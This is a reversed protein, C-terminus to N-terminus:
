LIPIAAQIISHHQCFYFRALFCINVMVFYVWHEPPHFEEEKRMEYPRTCAVRTGGDIGSGVRYDHVGDEDQLIMLHLDM